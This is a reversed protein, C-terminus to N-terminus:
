DGALCTPLFVLLATYAGAVPKEPAVDFPEVSEWVPRAPRRACRTRETPLPRSM